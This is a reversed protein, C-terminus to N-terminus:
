VKLVYGLWQDAKNLASRSCAFFIVNMQIKTFLPRIDSDQWFYFQRGFSDTQMGAGHKLSVYFLGGTTLSQKVNAMVHALRHHPIHVFAGSALIANFTLKSFDFTEFNGIIVDCSSYDIALQAMCESREFGTVFFGLQKLWLLDRGSGCGVDLVSAGPPLFRVFPTLFPAPDISVTREFYDIAHSQYFDTM